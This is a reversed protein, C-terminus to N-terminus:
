AAQTQREILPTDLSWRPWIDLGACHVQCVNSKGVTSYGPAGGTRTELQCIAGVAKPVTGQFCLRRGLARQRTAHAQHPLTPTCSAPDRCDRESRHNSTARAARRGRAACGRCLRDEGVSGNRIAIRRSCLYQKSLSAEGAMSDPAGSVVRGSWRKCPCPSPEVHARDSLRQDGRLSGHGRVSVQGRRLKMRKLFVDRVESSREAVRVTWALGGTVANCFVDHRGPM